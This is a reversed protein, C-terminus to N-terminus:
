IKIVKRIVSQNDFTFRVFYVGTPLNNTLPGLEGTHLGNAKLQKKEHWAIHKGSLDFLEVSVSMPKDLTFSYTLREQFPNPSLTVTIARNDILSESGIIKGPFGMGINAGKEIWQQTNIFSSKTFTPAANYYSTEIMNTTVIPYRYGDAYWSYRVINIDVKGCMNIQIGKKVSKVRLANEIIRDPLILAGCADASVFCDGFFDIRNSDNAFAVGIFHDNFMSGYNFPYKMKIVPDSYVLNIKLEKNVYGLEELQNESSKMFYDYGNDNLLINTSGIGTLKQVPPILISSVPSKGTYILNTFDWTQGTGTNGPDLYQIEQFTNSDGIALGNNKYTLSTQAFLGISLVVLLSLTFLKKM